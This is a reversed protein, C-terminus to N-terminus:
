SRTRRSEDEGNTKILSELGDLDAKINEEMMGLSNQVDDIRTKANTLSTKMSRLNELQSRINAIKPLIEAPKACIDKQQLNMILEDRAVKYAVELALPNGEEPVGCIIKGGDFRRFSGVAEPVFEDKVAGIAYLSSRNQKADDLEKLLSNKGSVRITTDKCEVVICQPIGGTDKTNIKILIDGVKGVPGSDDGVFEVEDEFSRALQDLTEHIYQQWDRGKATGKAREEETAIQQAEAVNLDVRLKEFRDDICKKM